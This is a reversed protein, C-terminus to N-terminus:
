LWKARLFSVLFPVENGECNKILTDWNDPPSGSKLMKAIVKYADTENQHARKNSGNNVKANVM